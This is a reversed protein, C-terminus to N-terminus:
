IFNNQLAQVEEGYISDIIKKSTNYTEQYHKVNEPKTKVDKRAIEKALDKLVKKIVKVHSETFLIDGQIDRRMEAYKQTIKQDYGVNENFCLM